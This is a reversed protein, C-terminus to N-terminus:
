LGLEVARSYPTNTTTVTLTPTLTDVTMGAVDTTSVTQMELEGESEAISGGNADFGTIQIAGNQGSEVTYSFDHNKQSVGNSGAFTAVADSSGGILLQLQPSGTVEVEEDFVVSLTVQDGVKGFANNVSNDSSASVSSIYPATNDYRFASTSVVGSVNGAPDRVQLHAYLDEEGNSNVGELFM